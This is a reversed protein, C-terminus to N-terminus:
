FGSRRGTARIPASARPASGEVLRQAEAANRTARYTALPINLFPDLHPALPVALRPDEPEFLVTKIVGWMNKAIPWWFPATALIIALKTYTAPAWLSKLINQLPGPDNM